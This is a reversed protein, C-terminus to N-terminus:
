QVRSEMEVLQDRLGKRVLPERKVLLAQLAKLGLDGQSVLRGRQVLKDVIEQRVWPARPVLLDKM